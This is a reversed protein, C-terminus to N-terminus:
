LSWWAKMEERERCFLGSWNWFEFNLVTHWKTSLFSAIMLSSPVHPHGKLSGKMLALDM